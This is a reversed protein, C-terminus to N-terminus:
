CIGDFHLREYFIHFTWLVFVDIGQVEHCGLLMRPKCGSIEDIVLVRADGMNKLVKCKHADSVNLPYPIEIGLGLMDHLTTGGDYNTAASGTTATCATCM